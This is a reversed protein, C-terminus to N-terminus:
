SPPQIEKLGEKNFFISLIQLLFAFPKSCFPSAYSSFNRFYVFPIALQLIHNIFKGQTKSQLDLGFDLRCGEWTRIKGNNLSSIAVGM